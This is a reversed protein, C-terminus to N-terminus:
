IWVCGELIVNTDPSGWKGGLILITVTPESDDWGKVKVLRQHKCYSTGYCAKEEHCGCVTSTLALFFSIVACLEIM